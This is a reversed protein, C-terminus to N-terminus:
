FRYGIVLNATGGTGKVKGAMWSGTISNWIQFNGVFSQAGLELGLQLGPKSITYYGGLILSTAAYGGERTTNWVFGPTTLTPKGSGLDLEFRGEFHFNDSAKVSIGASGSLGAASYEVDTPLVPDAVQGKHNRGFVGITGVFNAGSSSQPTFAVEVQFNGSGSQTADTEGINTVEVTDVGAASGLKVRLDINTEAVAVHAAGVFCIGFIVSLWKKKISM